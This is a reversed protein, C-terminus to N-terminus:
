SAVRFQSTTCGSGYFTPNGAWEQGFGVSVGALGGCIGM